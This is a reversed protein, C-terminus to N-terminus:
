FEKIFGFSMYPEKPKIEFVGIVRDANSRSM